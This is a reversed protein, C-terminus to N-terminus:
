KEGPLREGKRWKEPPVFEGRWVGRKNLRAIAEWSQMGTHHATAWGNRVLENNLNTEGLYAQGQRYHTQKAWDDRDTPIFCTVPKDGIQKRLFEAAEKGFAYMKNDIRGLQGLDPADLMGLLDVETGDAYRLTHADIVTVPGVIQVQDDTYRSVSRVITREVKPPDPQRPKSKPEQGSATLLTFFGSLLLLYSQRM